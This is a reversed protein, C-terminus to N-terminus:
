PFNWRVTDGVKAAATAPEWVSPTATINVVAPAGGGTGTEAPDTASLTVDVPGTYTGGAGPQAPSLSSTTVPPTKEGEPGITFDVSKTAEVNGAGDTSRYEVKHAGNGTVEVPGRVSGEDLPLVRVNRYDIVDSTGHNQLGIYGRAFQ